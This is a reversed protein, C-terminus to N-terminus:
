AAKRYKAVALPAFVAIIVAIWALAALAKHTVPGGLVLARIANVVVTIPNVKAFQQLWHPMTQTPVFVSSAFVFPFIWVFGATQVTEPDRLNMGVFASIWSFAHGFLVALALAGVARIFGAHFRFGLLTAVATMMLAVFVNRVADSITRGALVASRAMPLSRFRDIIGTSLDDALGVGTQMSGFVVTQIFIGPMLFDIYKLGIAPRLAGGFVYTFLV